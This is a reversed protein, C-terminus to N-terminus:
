TLNARPANERSFGFQQLMNQGISPSLVPRSSELQAEHDPTQQALSRVACLVTYLSIVIIIPNHIYTHVNPKMEAGACM